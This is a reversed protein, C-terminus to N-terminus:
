NILGGEGMMMAGETVKILRSGGAMSLTVTVMPMNAFAQPNDADVYKDGQMKRFITQQDYTMLIVKGPADTGTVQEFQIRNGEIKRIRGTQNLTLSGGPLPQSMNVSKLPGIKAKLLSATSTLGREEAIQMVTKGAYPGSTAPLNTKAGYKKLLKLSFDDLGYLVCYSIIPIGNIMFNPNAGRKLLVESSKFRKMYLAEFLANGGKTSAVDVKAGKDLLLTVFDDGAFVSAKMLATIGYQAALLNVDAGKDLLLRASYINDLEATYMLASIGNQDSANPNAGQNLLSATETLDGAAIAQLLQDGLTNETGGSKTEALSTGCCVLCIALCGTILIMSRAFSQVMVPIRNILRKM